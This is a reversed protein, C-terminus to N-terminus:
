VTMATIRRSRCIDCNSMSFSWHGKLSSSRSARSSALFRQSASFQNALGNHVAPPPFECITGSRSRLGRGGKGCPLSILLYVFDKLRFWRSSVKTTM